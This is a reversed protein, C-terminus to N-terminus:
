KGSVQSPKIFNELRAAAPALESWSSAPIKLEAYACTPFKGIEDGSLWTVLEELAPNHGVIMLAAQTDDQHRLWALLDAVAFTYLPEAVQVRHTGPSARVIGEITDMARRAPSSYIVFPEPHVLIGASAMLKLARKGRRNLPRERDSLGPNSWSSKAHRLLYLTKMPPFYLGSRAPASCGGPIM